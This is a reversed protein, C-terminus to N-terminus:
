PYFRFGLAAEMDAGLKNTVGLLPGLELFIEFKKSPKFNVGMLGKVGIGFDNERKKKEYFFSNGDGFAIVGGIGAYLEFDRSNFASPFNFTYIGDLRLNGYKSFSGINFIWDNSGGSRAKITIATPEGIM